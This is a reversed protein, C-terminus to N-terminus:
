KAKLGFDKLAKGFKLYNVKVGDDLDIEKRETALPYLIDREYENVETVIKEMTEREKSAKIKDAQSSSARTEVLKCQAIKASLKEDRYNRLYSNLIVSATDKNYRHMYVLANFNGKSSSFMWYIPRKQYMQIHDKYFDKMFYNRITDDATETNKKGLVSAVYELNEDFNETGFAAKM